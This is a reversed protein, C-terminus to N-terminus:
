SSTLQEHSNLSTKHATGCADPAELGPGERFARPKRPAASCSPCHSQATVAIGCRRGHDEGM